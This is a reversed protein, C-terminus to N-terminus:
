PKNIKVRKLDLINMSNSIIGSVSKNYFRLTEGYFLPIIPSEENLIENLQKYLSYKISTDQEIIAKEYIEDYLDNKFHTYNYGSKPYFNESYFLQFYNIADPFDAIWSKRYFNADYNIIRQKLASPTYIEVNVIFGVKELQKQLFECIIKYQQSASLTLKIEEIGIENYLKIAKNENYSIGKVKISSFGPIGLPIFGNNAPIGVGNRLYKVFKNRDIAYSIAQRIKKLRLPNQTTNNISDDVLIALYDTNLWPKKQMYFNNRFEQKLEGSSTLIMDKDGESLGSIMELKSLKFKLLEQQRDSLFTIAIADLYPLNVGNNDKEFYEKNKVLVMKVDKKWTKLMFPGTGIVNQSFESKYNLVLEYPLISAYPLCLQYLFSPQSELLEIQITSDDIVKIGDPFPLVNNFIYKGPSATEPNIIRSFSFQVDSALVTRISDKFLESKHFCIDTRLNFTYIKGDPSIKWSKSICPRINLNSDLTVLGNFLHRSALFDEFKSIRAPDLSSIGGPENYRFLSKNINVSNDNIIESKNSCSLIITYLLLYLIFRSM